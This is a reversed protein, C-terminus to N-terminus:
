SLLTKISNLKENVVYLEATNNAIQSLYTNAIQQADRIAAVDIVIAGVNTRITSIDQQISQQTAVILGSNVLINEATIHLATARGVLENGTDETISMAANVTGQAESSSSDMNIGISDAANDLSSIMNQLKPLIDNYTNASEQMVGAISNAYDEDSMDGRIYSKTIDKLKDKLESFVSENIMERTMEKGINSFTDAAYEYFSNLADKGNEYWEWLANNMDDLLPSYLESVYSELNEEFENVQEQYKVLDRLTEETEGVLTAGSELVAKALEVNLNNEADFLDTSVGLRMAENKLNANIWSQLDQTKEGRFFTRHRTQVRLNDKASVMNGKSTLANAAAQTAMGVVTGAIAGTVAGIIQGGLFGKIGGVIAGSIGASIVAWTKSLGSRADKYVVQQENLKENYNDIADASDQLDQRLKGISTSAFWNDEEQRAERVADRYARVADILNNIEAQKKRAAENKSALSGIISAGTTIASIAIQSAALWGQAGGGKLVSFNSSIAGLLSSMSNMIQGAVGGIVDGLQKMADGVMSIAMATTDANNEIADDYEQQAKTVRKSAGEKDEYVKEILGTTKNLRTKGLWVQEGSSVRTFINNAFDLEKKAATIKKFSDTLAKFPNRKALEENMRNIADTYEKLDEPNLNSAASRKVKEFQSVLNSLVSTSTKSLNEFARIYDPNEKLKSFDIDLLEKSKNEQSKVLAKELYTKKEPDNERAIEERLVKIVEDWKKILEERQQEYSKLEDSLGINGWWNNNNKQATLRIVANYKSEIESIISQDYMSDDWSLAKRGKAKAMEQRAKFEEKQREKEALIAENKQTRIQAIDNESDIRRQERVKEAGEKMAAVTANAIQRELSESLKKRENANKEQISKLKDNLEVTKNETNTTRRTEAKKADGISSIAKSAKLEEETAKVINDLLGEETAKNKQSQLRSAEAARSARLRMIYDAGEASLKGTNGVIGARTLEQKESDSLKTYSDGSKVVGYRIKATPKNNVFDMYEQVAQAAKAAAIARAVMARVFTNTNGNMVKEATSVNNITIGLQEFASKNEDIWQKKEAATNLNKWETQLKKFQVTATAAATEVKKTAEVVKAHAAALKAKQAEQEKEAKTAKKTAVIYTGIVGVVSAIAMALLVYPNAKAVSNFLAQAAAAAKTAIIGRGEAATKIKIAATAAATQVSEIGLMLASQKQLNVQVTKLSNSITLVSQLQTQLEIMEEQSDAFLSSAGIIGGLGSIVTDTGQSIADFVRTDSASNKISKQVDDMADRMEGAKSTLDTIQKQINRGFDGNKEENSLSRYQLTLEQIEERLRQMQKRLSEVASGQLEAGRADLVGRIAEQEKILADAEQKAENAKDNKGTSRLKNEKEILRDVEKNIAAYRSQLEATEKNQLYAYKNSEQEQQLKKREELEQRIQKQKELEADFYAHLKDQTNLGQSILYTYTEVDENASKWLESLRSVEKDDYDGSGKKSLANDLQTKYRDREIVMKEYEDKLPDNTPIYLMSDGKSQSSLTGTKEAEQLERIKDKTNEIKENVASLQSDLNLWANSGLETDNMLETLRNQQVILDSLLGEYDRIAGNRDEFNIPAGISRQAEAEDKIAEVVREHAQKEDKLTEILANSSTVQTAKTTANLASASTSAVTANTSGAISASLSNYSVNAGGIATSIEGFAGSIDSLTDRSHTLATTTFQLQRNLEGYTKTGPEANKLEDQLAKQKETLRAVYEGTLEITKRVSGLNSGFKTVADEMRKTSQTTHETESEYSKIADVAAQFSKKLEASSVTSTVGIQKLSKESADIVKSLRDVTKELNNIDSIAQKAGESIGQTELSASVGLAGNKAEKAM